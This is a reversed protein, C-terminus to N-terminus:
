IIEQLAISALVFAGVGHLDNESTPRSVYYDYKGASTGICIGKMIWSGDSDYVIMNKLLGEYAFQAAQLYKPDIYEKQIAKAIAYIFLSSCSSELWNDERDGKDVVQHWLGTEQDQFDILSEVLSQISEILERRGIHNQPLRDLIEVVAASYWGISRGWFEPSCGTVPHSWPAERKEDWAHYLLGTKADKMHTRMLKEQFLVMDILEPENYEHSYMLAFPGAMFLGDLWMQYPYKDKHWFGGEKTRNLTSFLGRLKKAAIKYRRDETEKYITFLLMGPQLSDLEDRAFVFNGEEDILYDFYGKVYDFYEPKGTKEWVKLMGYLFVGQHYHWKGAPPLEKPSYKRMLSQCAKEALYLPSYSKVQDAM